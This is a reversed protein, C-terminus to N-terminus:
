LCAIAHSQVNFVLNYKESCGRGIGHTQILWSKKMNQSGDCIEQLLNSTM